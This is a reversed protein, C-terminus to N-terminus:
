RATRKKKLHTLKRRLACVITSIPNILLVLLRALCSRFQLSAYKREGVVQPLLIPVSKRRKVFTAIPVESM